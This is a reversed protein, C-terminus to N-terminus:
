MWVTNCDTCAWTVDGTLRSTRTHGTPTGCDPCTMDAITEGYCDDCMPTGRHDHEAPKSDYDCTTAELTATM